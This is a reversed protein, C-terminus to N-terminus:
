WGREVREVKVELAAFAEYLMNVQRRLSQDQEVTLPEFLTQKVFTGLPVGSARKSLEAHQSETLRINIQM